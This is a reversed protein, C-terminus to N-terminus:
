IQKVIQDAPFFSLFCSFLFFAFSLVKAQLFNFCRSVRYSCGVEPETQKQIAAQTSGALLRRPAAPRGIVRPTSGSVRPVFRRSNQGSDPRGWAGGPSIKRFDEDISHRLKSQNTSLAYAEDFDRTSFGHFPDKLIFLVRPRCSPIKLGPGATEM